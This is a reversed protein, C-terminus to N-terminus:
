EGKPFVKVLIKSAQKKAEFLGTPSSGIVAGVLISAIIDKLDINFESPLSVTYLVSVIIGVVIGIVPYLDQYDKKKGKLWNKSIGLLVSILTPVALIGMGELIEQM